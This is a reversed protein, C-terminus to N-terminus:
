GGQRAAQARISAILADPRELDVAHGCGPVVELRARPLERAYREGCELPVVADHEGWIVLSPVDVGCLLAALRRSYMYPKWAVRATMERSEDWALLQEIDPTSGFRKEYSSRDRFYAQVYDTHSILFQDLIKGQAPLLGAAGVLVLNRLRRPSLTALEAALFGGFGLGVVSAPALGQADLWLGLLIALDRPTRAWTPRESEGYGPLDPLCVCFDAALRDWGDSWACPGISHHLVVLPPGSGGRTARLLLKAARQEVRQPQDPM